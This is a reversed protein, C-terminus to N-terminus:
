KQRKWLGYEKKKKYIKTKEDIIDKLEWMTIGYVDYLKLVEDLTFDSSGHMKSGVAQRSIGLWVSIEKYTANRFNDSKFAM